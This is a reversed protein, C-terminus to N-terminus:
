GSRAYRSEYVANGSKDIYFRGDVQMEMNRILELASHSKAITLDLSKLVTYNISLSFGTSRDITVGSSGSGDAWAPVAAGVDYLTDRFSLATYGTTNIAALGLGNLSFTHSSTNVGGGEALTPTWATNCFADSGCQAFDAAVVLTPSAPTAGYVNYSPDNNASDQGFSLTVLLSVSAIVAGALSSTDFLVISRSLTEWASGAGEGFSAYFWSNDAYTGAGARIV